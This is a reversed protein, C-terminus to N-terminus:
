ERESLYQSAAGSQPSPNLRWVPATVVNLKSYAQRLAAEAQEPMPATAFIFGLYSSGEPLPVLEYGERRSIEIHEIFPLKQACLVGEVRRLVGPRPTPIMMVGAAAQNWNPAVPQGLAHDLVLQELTAGTGFSLLRACQGGITRAAVELIWINEDDYRLEAHIPGERLGYAACADAVRRAIRRQFTPDLRSPTIYYTEEFFPGELPDPKDFLALVTLEAGILLGELAVEDGQVYREILVHEREEATSLETIIRGIRECATRFETPNNARIVGRSGAMSLPKIVVPFAIDPLAGAQVDDLNMVCHRPVPVGAEWLRARAKDKRRAFVAAQPPNGPLNLREAVRSALEVTSDDTGIVGAFPRHQAEALLRMLSDEVDSPEISVGEILASVLSHEGDCALLVDAGLERAAELYPSVRYSNNASILLVRASM